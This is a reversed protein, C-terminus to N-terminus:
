LPLRPLQGRSGVCSAVVGASCRVEWRKFRYGRVGVGPSFVYLKNHKPKVKTTFLRTSLLFLILILNFFHQVQLYVFVQVHIM